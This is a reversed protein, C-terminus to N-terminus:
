GKEAAASGDLIERVKATLASPTFPKQLVQYSLTELGQDAMDNESYGSVFLVRARPALEHVRRAVEAGNMEPMVVDSILLDIGGKTSRVLREAESGRDTALVQYGSSRLIECVLERVIEEDEVVLIKEGGTAQRSPAPAQSAVEVPGDERPMLIRFTTGRGRESEVVIAGRSQRVIGYVTALGLGTGKGVGKTTFFPEFIRAKTEADMGEGTDTVELAVYDGPPLEAVTGGAEITL